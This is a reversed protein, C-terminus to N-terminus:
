KIRKTYGLGDILWVGALMQTKNKAGVAASTIEARQAGTENQNFVAGLFCPANEKGRIGVKEM